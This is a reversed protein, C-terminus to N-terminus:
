VSAGHAHEGEEEEKRIVIALFECYQGGTAVMGHGHSSDYTICDGENLVETHGDLNVKLSGRL